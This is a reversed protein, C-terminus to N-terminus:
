QFLARLSGRRRGYDGLGRGRYRAYLSVNFAAGFLILVVMFALPLTAASQVSGHAATACGMLWEGLGAGLIGWCVVLCLITAVRLRDIYLSIMLFLDAVMIAMLRYLLLITADSSKMGVVILLNACVYAFSSLGAILVQWMFLHFANVQSITIITRVQDVHDLSLTREVRLALTDLDFDFSSPGVDIHAWPEQFAPLLSPPVRPAPPAERSLYVPIVILGRALSTEIEFRVVDSPDELRRRGSGDMLDFWLSGILVLMIASQSVSEVIYPRFDEGPPISDVDMFVADKGFRQVLRDYVRGAVGASDARRYSIFIKKM